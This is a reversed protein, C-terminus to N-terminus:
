VTQSAAVSNKKLQKKDWLGGQVFGARILKFRHTVWRDDSIKVYVGERNGKTTFPSPQNSFEELQELSDLKGFFLEPVVAFGAAALMPRAVQSAIFQQHEYDYLDYTIFLSPLQDYELGHQAIMWEGYVAVPGALTELKQFLFRNKYFWNWVSAFQMKAPTEKHFGKRLIHTHNRILPEDEFLVMGCNAGDVKETVSVKDSALIPQADRDSAILDDATANPKWPVHQTRPFEPLIHKFQKM